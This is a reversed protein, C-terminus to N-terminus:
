NTSRLRGTRGRQAPRVLGFGVLGLGILATTTPEPVPVIGFTFDFNGSYEGDAIQSVLVRYTGPDLTQSFSYSDVLDFEGGFLTTGSEDEVRAVNFLAGPSFEDPPECCFSGSLTVFVPTGSEVEFRVDFASTSLGFALGTNGNGWMLSTGAESEQRPRITNTNWYAFPTPPTFTLPDEGPQFIDVVRDDQLLLISASAPAAPAFLALVLLLSFPNRSM